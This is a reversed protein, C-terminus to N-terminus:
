RAEGQSRHTKASSDSPSGDSVRHGERLHTGSLRCLIGVTEGCSGCSLNLVFSVCVSVCVCVPSIMFATFNMNQKHIAPEVSLQKNYSSYKPEHGFPIVLYLLLQLQFAGQSLFLMFSQPMICLCSHVHIIYGMKTHATINHTGAVNTKVSHVMVDVSLRLVLKSGLSRYLAFYFWVYVLLNNVQQQPLQFM